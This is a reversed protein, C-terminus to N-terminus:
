LTRYYCVRVVIRITNDEVCMYLICINDSHPPTNIHQCGIKMNFFISTVSIEHGLEPSTMVHVRERPTARKIFM